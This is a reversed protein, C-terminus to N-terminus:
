LTLQWSHHKQRRACRGNEERSLGLREVDGDVERGASIVDLAIWM